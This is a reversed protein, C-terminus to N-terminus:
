GGPQTPAKQGPGGDAQTKPPNARARAIEATLGKQQACEGCAKALKDADAGAKTVGANASVRLQDLLERSTELALYPCVASAGYGILCALQHTDRAEGTECVISAKMRRGTHILHHHVAGTALLMPIAVHEHDMWRDSLILIRAGAQVAAEAQQCLRGVAQELGATGEALPWTADLTAHPHDEGELHRLAELEHELLVPSDLQVLRAHEPSEALLNRRWGLHVTLSM